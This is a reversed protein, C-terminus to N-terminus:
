LQLVMFQSGYVYFKNKGIVLKRQRYTFLKPVSSSNVIKGVATGLNSVSEPTVLRGTSRPTTVVGVSREQSNEVVTDKRLLFNDECFASHHRIYTKGSHLATSFRKLFCISTQQLVLM